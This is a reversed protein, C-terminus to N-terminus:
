WLKQKPKRHLLRRQLRNPKARKPSDEVPGLRIVNPDKYPATAHTCLKANPHSDYYTDSCNPAM